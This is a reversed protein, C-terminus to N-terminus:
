PGTTAPRTTARPRPRRKPATASQREDELKGPESSESDDIATQVAVIERLLHTQVRELEEADLLRPGVKSARETRRKHAIGPHKVELEGLAQELAGIRTRLQRRRDAQEDPAPTSHEPAVYLAAAVERPDVGTQHAERAATAAIASAASLKGPAQAVFTGSGQQSSLLGEHELRQYVARVTNPNVGLGEALDRLGPLRSGADLRGDQIRTRLAWALQVGLPVEADRDLAIGLSQFSAPESSPSMSV